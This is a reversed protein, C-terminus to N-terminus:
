SSPKEMLSYASIRMTIKSMDRESDINLIVMPYMSLQSNTEAPWSDINCSRRTVKSRYNPPRPSSKSRLKYGPWVMGIVTSQFVCVKAVAVKSLHLVSIRNGLVVCCM